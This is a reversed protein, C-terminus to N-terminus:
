KTSSTWTRRNGTNAASSDRVIMRPVRALLRHALTLLTRAEMREGYGLHGAAAEVSALVEPEVAGTAVCRALAESLAERAQDIEIDALATCVANDLNEAAHVRQHRLSAEDLQETTVIIAAKM